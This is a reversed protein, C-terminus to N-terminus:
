DSTSYHDESHCYHSEAIFIENKFLKNQGWAICVEDGIPNQRFAALEAYTILGEENVTNLIDFKVKGITKM